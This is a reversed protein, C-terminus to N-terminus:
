DDNRGLNQLLSVETLIAEVSGPAAKKWEPILALAKDFAGARQHLEVADRLNTLTKGGSLTLRREVLAAAAAFDQRGRFLRIQTAQILPDDAVTSNALM